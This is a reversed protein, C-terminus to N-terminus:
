TLATFLFTRCHFLSPLLPFAIPLLPLPHSSICLLPMLPFHQLSSLPLSPHMPLLFVHNMSSPQFFSSQAASVPDDFFVFLIPTPSAGSPTSVSLYVYVYFWVYLYLSLCSSANVFRSLYKSHWSAGNSTSFHLCHSHTLSHTLWGIIYTFIYVAQTTRLGVNALAYSM